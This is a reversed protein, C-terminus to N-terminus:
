QVKDSEPFHKCVIKPTLRPWTVYFRGKNSANMHKWGPIRHRCLFIKHKTKNITLQLRQNWRRRRINSYDLTESRGEQVRQTSITQETNHESHRTQPNNSRRQRSQFNDHIRRRVNLTHDHTITTLTTIRISRKSKNIIMQFAIINQNNNTDDRWQTSPSDKPITRWRTLWIGWKCFTINRKFWNSVTERTTKIIATDM